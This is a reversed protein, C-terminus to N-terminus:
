CVFVYEYYEELMQRCLIAHDPHSHFVNFTAGKLSFQCFVSILQIFGSCETDM